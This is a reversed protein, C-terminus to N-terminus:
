AIPTRDPAIWRHAIIAMLGAWGAALWLTVMGLWMWCAAGTIGGVALGAWLRLAAGAGPDREGRLRQALGLGIRVLAGTMYTVGVGVRGDRLFTANMAGMALVMAGQAVARIQAMEALAGTLLLGTVLGLVAAKRRAGAWGSVLAGLAVGGVFGAILGLPVLAMGPARALDVALRTTNGSMFSLFYGGNAIFGSADVFGALAALAVAMAQRKGDMQHM